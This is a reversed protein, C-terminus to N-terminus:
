AESALGGRGWLQGLSEGGGPKRESGNGHEQRPESGYEVVPLEEVLVDQVSLHQSWTVQSPGSTGVPVEATVLGSWAEVTVLGQGEAARLNEDAEQRMVEMSELLWSSVMRGAEGEGGGSYAQGSEIRVTCNSNETTAVRGSNEIISNQERGMHQYSSLYQLVFYPKGVFLPPSGLTDIQIELVAGPQAALMGPKNVTRSEKETREFVWKADMEMKPWQLGMSSLGGQEPLNEDFGYCSRFETITSASANSLPAPLAVASDANRPPSKLQSRILFALMDAMLLRGDETPHMGDKTLSELEIQEHAVQTPLSGAWERAFFICADVGIQAFDAPTRQAFHLPLAARPM